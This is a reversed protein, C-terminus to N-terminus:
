ETFYQCLNINAAANCNADVSGTDPNEMFWIFFVNPRVADQGFPIAGGAPTNYHMNINLKKFYKIDQATRNNVGDVLRPYIKKRRHWLLKIDQLNLRFRTRISDGLADATFGADNYSINNDNGVAQYWYSLPNDSRTTSVIYMKLIVPSVSVGTVLGTWRVNGKLGIGTLTIRNGIRQFSQAGVVINSGILYSRFDRKNLVALPEETRKKELLADKLIKKVGGSVKTIRVRKTSRKRSSMTMPAGRKAGRPTSGRPTEAFRLRRPTVALM